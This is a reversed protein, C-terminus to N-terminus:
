TPSCNPPRASSASRSRASRSCRPGASGGGRVIPRSAPPGSGLRRLEFRVEEGAGDTGRLERDGLETITIPEGDIFLLGGTGLRM